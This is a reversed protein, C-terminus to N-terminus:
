DAEAELVMVKVEVMLDLISISNPIIFGNSNFRKQSQFQAINEQVVSEDKRFKKIWEEQTMLLAELEGVSIPKERSTIATIFPGYEETLRELIAAVHKVDDLPAGVSILTDVIKKIELLYSTVTGEKRTRSLKSKM